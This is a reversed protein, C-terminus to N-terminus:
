IGGLRKPASCATKKHMMAFSIVHCSGVFYIFAVLGSLMSSAMFANQSIIRLGTTSTEHFRVNSLISYKNSSDDVVWCGHCGESVLLSLLLSEMSRSWPPAFFVKNQSYLPPPTLMLDCPLDM